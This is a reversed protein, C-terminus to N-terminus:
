RHWLPILLALWLVGTNAAPKWQFSVKAVEIFSCLVVCSTIEWAGNSILLAFYALARRAPVLTTRTLATYSAPHSIPKFGEPVTRCQGCSGTHEKMQSAGACLYSLYVHAHGPGCYFVVFLQWVDYCRAPFCRAASGASLKPCKTTIDRELLHNLDNWNPDGCEDRGVCNPSVRCYFSKECSPLSLFFFFLSQRVVQRPSTLTSIFCLPRASYCRETFLCLSLTIPFLSCLTCFLCNM